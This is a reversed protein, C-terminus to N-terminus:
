LALIGGGKRRPGPQHRAREALPPLPAFGIVLAIAAAITFGAGVIKECRSPDTAFCVPDSSPEVTTM